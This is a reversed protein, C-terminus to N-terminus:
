HYSRHLKRSWCKACLGLKHGYNSESTILGWPPSQCRDRAFTAKEFVELFLKKLARSAWESDFSPIYPMAADLQENQGKSFTVAMMSFATLLSDVIMNWCDQECAAPHPSVKCSQFPNVVQTASTNVLPALM